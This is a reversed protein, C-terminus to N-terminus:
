EAAGFIRWDAEVMEVGQEALAFKIGSMHLGEAQERPGRCTVVLEAHVDKGARMEWMREPTGFFITNVWFDPGVRSQAVVRTILKTRLFEAHEEPTALKPEGFEDLVYFNRPGSM